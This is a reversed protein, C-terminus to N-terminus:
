SAEPAALERRPALYTQRWADYERLYGHHPDPDAPADLAKRLWPHGARSGPAARDELDALRRLLGRTEGAELAALLERRADAWKEARLFADAMAVRGATATRHLATVKEAKRLMRDGDAPAFGDLWAAFVEPRPCAQWGEALAKEARDPQDLARLTQGLFLTLRAFDPCATLGREAFALAAPRDGEDFKQTAVELCVAAELFAARAPTFVGRRRLTPLLDLAAMFNRTRLRTDFVMGLVWPSKPRLAFAREAYAAAQPWNGLRHAQSLLGRLGLFETNPDDVLNQFHREAEAADGSMNAAEAMLAEAVKVQNLLRGTQGALRRTDVKEGAAIAALGDMFLRLGKEERRNERWHALRQPAEILWVYLRVLLACLVLLVAVGGCLAVATTRVEWGYWVIAVAGPEHVSLDAVLGAGFLLAFFLAARMLM